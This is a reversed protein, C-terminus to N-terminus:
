GLYEVASFNENMYSPILFIYEMLYIQTNESFFIVFNYEKWSLSCDFYM